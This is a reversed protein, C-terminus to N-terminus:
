CKLKVNLDLSTTDMARESQAGGGGGKATEGEGTWKYGSSVYRVTNSCDATKGKVGIIVLFPTPANTLTKLM